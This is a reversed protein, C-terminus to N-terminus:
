PQYNPLFGPEEKLPVAEYWSEWLVRPSTKSTSETTTSANGQGEPTEPPSQPRPERAGLNRTERLESPM